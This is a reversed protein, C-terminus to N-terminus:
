GPTISSHENLAQDVQGYLAAVTTSNDLVVDARAAKDLLPMQSQIRAIADTRSLQNRAMLRQCQQAESCIVVWSETVQDVLNAEFLLPISHVVVPCDQLRVMAQAFCQRVFPHIQQELWRKEDTNYFVVDGLRRRDLEGDPQVMATGYRQVIAQFIPSGPVVAQRAYADADLVPIGHHQELYHSVTSKGTAIGGTLGIIRPSPAAM